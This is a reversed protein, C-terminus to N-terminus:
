SVGGSAPTQPTTIKVATIQVATAKMTCVQDCACIDEVFTATMKGDFGDITQQIELMKDAAEPNNNLYTMVIKADLVRSVSEFMALYKRAEEPIDSKAEIMALFSTQQDVIPDGNDDVFMKMVNLARNTDGNGLNDMLNFTKTLTAKDSGFVSMLQSVVLPDLDSALGVTLMYEQTDNLGSADIVQQRAGMALALGDADDKFRNEISKKAAEQLASTRTSLDGWSSESAM